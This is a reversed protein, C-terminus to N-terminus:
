LPKGVFLLIFRSHKQIKISADTFPSSLFSFIGYDSDKKTCERHSTVDTVEQTRGGMKLNTQGTVGEAYLIADVPIKVM